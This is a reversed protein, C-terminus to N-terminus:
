IKSLLTPNNEFIVPSYNLKCLKEDFVLLILLPLCTGENTVHWYLGRWSSVFYSGWYIHSWWITCYSGAWLILPFYICVQLVCLFSPIYNNKDYREICCTMSLRFMLFGWLFPQVLLDIQVWTLWLYYVKHANCSKVVM